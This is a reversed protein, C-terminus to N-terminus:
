SNILTITDTAYIGGGYSNSTSSNFLNNITASFIVFSYATNNNVQSNTLKISGNSIFVGGGLSGFLPDLSNSFSDSFATNNSVQTNNLELNNISYIGGGKVDDNNTKVLGNTIILHNLTTNESTHIVRGFGQVDISSKQSTQTNATADFGGSVTLETTFSLTGSTKYNGSALYIQSISSKDDIYFYDNLRNFATAWSLGDQNSATNTHNFYYTNANTAYNKGSFDAEFVGIDVVGNIIRSSGDPTVPIIESMNADNDLDYVDAPLYSNNGADILVSSPKLGFNGNDADIFNNIAFDAVAANINGTGTNSLDTDKIVSHNSTLTGSEHESSSFSTGGNLNKTNGWLISNQITAQGYIGGAVAFDSSVARNGIAVSNILTFGTSLLGRYIGGGFSYGEFESSSSIATNNSVKSNTLLISGTLTYIGGGSSEIPFDDGVLAIASAKNNSVLSNTLTIDGSSTYIGGGYSFEFAAATNNLVKVRLLNLNGTSHVGAGEADSGSLRGNQISLGDLFLTGTTHNAKLVRHSHNGDIITANSAIDQTGGGTPYGGKITIPHNITVEAGEQYTGQAIRIEDNENHLCKNNIFDTAQSVTTFANTWSSGDNNGTANQDVFVTNTTPSLTINHITSVIEGIGGDTGTAWTAGNITGNNDNTADNLVTGVDEYFAYYAVLGTEQGTFLNTQGKDLLSDVEAQNSPATNWVRLASIQGDFFETVGSSSGIHASSPSAATEMVGNSAKNGIEIGNRYLRMANTPDDFTAVIHVWQGNYDAANISVDLETYGDDTTEIGFSLITGNDQFSLLIREVANNEKRFIEQNGVTIDDPKVWAEITLGDSFDFDSSHAIVVDDDMGGFGLAFSPNAAFVHFDTTENIVGTQFDLVNGTGMEPGDVVAHSDDNRLYYDFGLESGQLTLTNDQPCNITASGSLTQTTPITNGRVELTIDNANYEVNWTYSSPLTFTRFNGTAGGHTIIKFRDGTTPTFGLTVELDILNLDL